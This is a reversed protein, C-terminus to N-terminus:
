TSSRLVIQRLRKIMQLFDLTQTSGRQRTTTCYLVLGMFDCALM